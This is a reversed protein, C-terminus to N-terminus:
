GLKTPGKPAEVRKAQPPREIEGVFTVEHHLTHAQILVGNPPLSKKAEEINKAAVTATEPSTRSIERGTKDTKITHYTLRYVSIKM